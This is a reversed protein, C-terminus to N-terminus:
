GDEDARVDTSSTKSHNPIPGSGVRKAEEQDEDLVEQRPLLPQAHEGEGKITQYERALNTLNIYNHGQHRGQGNM